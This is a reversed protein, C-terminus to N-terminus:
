IGRSSRNSLSVSIINHVIYSLLYLELSVYNGATATIDGYDIEYIYRHLESNDFLNKLYISRDFRTIVPVGLERDVLVGDEDIRCHVVPNDLSQLKAIGELVYDNMFLLSRIGGAVTKKSDSVIQEIISM